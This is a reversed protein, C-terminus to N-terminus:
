RLSCVRVLRSCGHLRAGGDYLPACMCVCVCVCVLGLLVDMCDNIYLLSELLTKVADQYKLKICQVLEKISDESSFIM